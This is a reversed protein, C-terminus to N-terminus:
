RTMSELWVLDAELDEPRAYAKGNINSVVADRQSCEVCALARALAPDAKAARAADLKDARTSDQAPAPAKSM